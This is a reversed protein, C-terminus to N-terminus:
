LVGSRGTEAVREVVENMLEFYRGAGRRVPLGHAPALAYGEFRRALADTVSRVRAVDVYQFWFMVRGHFAELRDVGIEHDIEDTCRLCEGELHPFGLWDVTFLVRSTEETMWTHLAADLFTAEPFGVRLGGLDIEDDPGVLLADDLHYLAHTEGARPAVLRCDPYRRLIRAANGAHPVDPHSVALYDLPRGDLLEELGSLVLDGSAPSLTDFLLTREGTLLYANQPVHLDRAQPDGESGNGFLARAIEDRHRGCEQIWHIGPWVDRRTAGGGTGTM